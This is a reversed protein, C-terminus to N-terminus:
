GWVTKPFCVSKCNSISQTTVKMKVIDVAAGARSTQWQSGSSRHQLHPDQQVPISMCDLLGSCSLLKQCHEKKKPHYALLHKPEHLHDTHAIESQNPICIHKGELAQNSSRFQPQLMATNRLETINAHGILCRRTLTFIGTCTLSFLSLEYIRSNLWMCKMARSSQVIYLIYICVHIISNFIETRVNQLLACLMITAMSFGICCKGFQIKEIREEGMSEWVGGYRQFTQTQYTQHEETRCFDHPLKM